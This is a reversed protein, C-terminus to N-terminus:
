RPAYTRAFLAAEPARDTKVLLDVCGSADGLQLLSAFAVNNQGKAGIFVCRLSVPVIWPSPFTSALGALNELGNRDGMALGLLLLASVDGAKEFCQKALSFKWTALAKDGVAKWKAESEPDPTAQAISLAVELEDLSLALDFRHDPDTSVELALQKHGVYSVINAANSRCVFASYEGQLELFRAVKNRQDVPVSPLVEEAAALDGRLVATQYEIISLSLNYGYVNVQKDVVYMKNHGPMYGLLYM